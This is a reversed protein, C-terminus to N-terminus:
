VLDLSRCGRCCFSEVIGNAAVLSLFFSLFFSFCVFLQCWCFISSGESQSKKKAEWPPDLYFIHCTSISKQRQNRWSVTSYAADTETRQLLDNKCQFFILLTARLRDLRSKIFPVLVVCDLWSSTSTSGSKTFFFSFSQKCILQLLPLHILVSDAVSRSMPFFYITPIRPNPDQNQEIIVM